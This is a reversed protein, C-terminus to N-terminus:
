FIWIALYYICVLTLVTGVRYISVIFHSTTDFYERASPLPMWFLLSGIIRDILFIVFILPLLLLGGVIAFKSQKKM